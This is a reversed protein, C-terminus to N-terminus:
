RKEFRVDISGNSTSVDLNKKGGSLNGPLSNNGNSTQSRISFESMPDAIAGTINGNSSRLTIATEASLGSIEIGNNSTEAYIDKQSAVDTLRLRGNSSRATVGSATAGEFSIGGNSTTTVISGDVKVSSLSISSNSTDSELSGTTSLHDLVIGGNSTNLKLNGNESLNSISIENNSTSLAFDCAMSNPVAIQFTLNGMFNFDFGIHDYWHMDKNLDIELRGDSDTITYKEKDREYYHLHIKNDPSSIVRVQTNSTNLVLEKIAAAETVYSKETYGSNSGLRSFDGGVMFFSVIATFLGLVVLIGAAILVPTKTLKM